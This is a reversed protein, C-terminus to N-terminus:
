SAPIEFSVKTGYGVKSELDLKGGLMKAREQIASIGLAERKSARGLVEEVDFGRGDDEVTARITDAGMDLTILVNSAQAHQWANNLLEQIIRFIAVETHSPLRREEGTITLNTPIGSRRSFGEIYRRLTPVIGLDDLTIPRLDSIFGRVQEFTANTAKKLNALETRAKEPDVDLARECIEAQLILNTLTQAPGNQMRRALRKREKEQAEIINMITPEVPPLQPPEKSMREAFDLFRRLLKAYKQLNHKDSKLKELQGKMLFLRKQADQAASYVEKIDSRPVIDFRAEMQRIRNAIQTNRRVLRDVEGSTQQILIEIEKLEKKTQEYERKSEEVLEQLSLDVKEEVM